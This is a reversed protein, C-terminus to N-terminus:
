ASANADYVSCDSEVSKFPCGDKQLLPCGDAKKHGVSHIVKMTQMMAEKHHYDKEGGPMQSLKSHIEEVSKADKFACGEKFEPCKKIEELLSENDMKAFPCGEKFAPCKEKLKSIDAGTLNELVDSPPEILPKGEKSADKFPCGEKTKFVPCEGVKEELSKSESHIAKLLSLLQEHAPGTHHKSEPMKSLEELMEKINDMNKFPCGEKFEPFKKIEEMFIDQALKSYPCGDKFAPCKKHVSEKEYFEM